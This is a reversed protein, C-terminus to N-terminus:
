LLLSNPLFSGVHPISGVYTYVLSQVWDYQMLPFARAMLRVQYIANM